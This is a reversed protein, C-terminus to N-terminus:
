SGDVFGAGHGYSNGYPPNKPSKAGATGVFALGLAAVAALFALKRLM